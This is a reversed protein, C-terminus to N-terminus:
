KLTIFHNPILKVIEMKTTSNMYCQYCLFKNKYRWIGKTSKKCKDCRRFSVNTNAM